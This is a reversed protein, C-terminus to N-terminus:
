EDKNIELVIILYITIMMLLHKVFLLKRDNLKQAM